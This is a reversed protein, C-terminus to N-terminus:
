AAVRDFAGRSLSSMRESNPAFNDVMSWSKGDDSSAAYGYGSMFLRKGCDEVDWIHTTLRSRGSSNPLEAKTYYPIISWQGNREKRFMSGVKKDGDRPDTAPVYLRGDSLVRMIEICDTGSTFENEFSKKRPDYAWIPIPGMNKDWDGTGLYVKGKYVQLDQISNALQPKAWKELTPNGLLELSSTVDPCDAACVLTSVAAVLAAVTTNATLNMTM